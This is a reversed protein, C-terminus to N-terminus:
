LTFHLADPELNITLWRTSYSTAVVQIHHQTHLRKEAPLFGFQGSFVFVLFVFMLVLRASIIGECRIMTQNKQLIM